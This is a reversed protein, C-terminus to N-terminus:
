SMSSHTHSLKLPQYAVRLRISSFVHFSILPKLRPVDFSRSLFFPLRSSDLLRSFVGWGLFRFLTCCPTGSPPLLTSHLCQLHACCSVKHFPHPKIQPFKHEMYNPNM